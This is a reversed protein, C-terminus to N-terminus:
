EVSKLAEVMNIKNLTSNTMLNVTIAFCFSIAGAILYSTPQVELAFTISPMKLSSLLLDSLLHGLPLGGGIGILTLILTEKNMYAHIENDFFGLVKITALERVRESINTNSLTFLVVFALGAALALLIYIVYNLLVFDTAFEEKLGATSVSSVVFEEDLMAKAYTVPDDVESTFHAYAANPEFTGFLDEYVEQAIYVCGGLYNEVIGSVVVGHRDLRANQLEMSTGVQAELLGTANQTILVGEQGLEMMKGQKDSTRIYTSLSRGQPVVVMQMSESEGTENLVKINELQVPIFDKITATERVLFDTLANNEGSGAVVMWDYQYIDEYQKPMLATISDRIAFGTLVLATCCAIGVVTM